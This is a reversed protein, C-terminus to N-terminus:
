DVIGSHHELQVKEFNFVTSVFGFAAVNSFFM